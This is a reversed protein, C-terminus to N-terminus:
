LYVSGLLTSLFITKGKLSLKGSFLCLDNFSQTHLTYTHHISHMHLIFCYFIASFLSQLIKKVLQKCPNPWSCYWRLKKKLSWQLVGGSSSLCEFDALDFSLYKLFILILSKVTLFHFITSNCWSILMTHTSGHM